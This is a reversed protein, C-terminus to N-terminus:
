DEEYIQLCDECEVYWGGDGYSTLFQYNRIIGGCFCRNKDVKDYWYIKLLDSLSLGFKDRYPIKNLLKLILKNM